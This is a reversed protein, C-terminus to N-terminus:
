IEHVDYLNRTCLVRYNRDSTRQLFMVCPSSKYKEECRQYTIELQKCFNEDVKGVLVPTPCENPVVDPCQPATSNLLYIISLWKM